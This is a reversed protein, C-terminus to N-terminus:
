MCVYVYICIHVYVGHDRQRVLGQADTRAAATKANKVVKDESKSARESSMKFAQQVIVSLPLHQKKTQKEKFWRFANEGRQSAVMGHTFVKWTWARIWKEKVSMLRTMQGKASDALSQKTSGEKKGPAQELISPNTTSRSEIWSDLFQSLARLLQDADTEDTQYSAKWFLHEFEYWEKAWSRGHRFVPRIADRVNLWLHFLCLLHLTQMVRDVWTLTQPLGKLYCGNLM